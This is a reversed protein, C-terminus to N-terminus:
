RYFLANERHWQLLKLDPPNKEPLKLRQGERNIFESQVHENKSEKKIRDSLLLRYDNDFSILGRDFAADFTASLCLGNRPNLREEISESWPVIHSARLLEPIPNATVCCRLNYSHLVIRRFFNQQCRQRNVIETETEGLRITVDDDSSKTLESQNQSRESETLNRHLRHSSLLSEIELVLQERNYQFEDWIEKDLKSAGAL